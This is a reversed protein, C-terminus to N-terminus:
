DVTMRVAVVLSATNAALVVSSLVTMLTRRVQTGRPPDINYEVDMNVDLSTRKHAKHRSVHSHTRARAVFGGRTMMMLVVLVLLVLLMVVM